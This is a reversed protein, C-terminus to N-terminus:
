KCTVKKSTSWAGYLKKGSFTKYARVRVYYSKGKTFNKGTYTVTSGGSIVKTAVKNKFKSDKAWVIEYGSVGGSPKAWTVKIKTTSPSTVSKLTVKNPKTKATVKASKAGVKTESDKTFAAVCLSYSTGGKLSTVTTSVTASGSVTKLRTYKKTSTNYQYINYGDAGAVKNWSLKVSTAAVSNVKLGGAKPPLAHKTNVASYDTWGKSIYARVKVAYENAATLGNLTASNTTVTKNFTTGKTKNTVYVYYKTAGSYKNWKFSLSEQTRSTLAVGTVKNASSSDSDSDDSQAPVTCKKSPMSNFVPIYFTHSDDLVGAKAYAKYTMVSAASPANVTTTYEHAYHSGSETNVNFKQLYGTYQYKGYGDAIYQSGHYITKYPTTWPRGYTLYKTRVDDKLIYGIKGGTSYSNGSETYLKGKFYDGIAGRYSFYQENALKTKTGTGTKKTSDYDSYMTTATNTRLFGSAWALGMSANSYAGINFYNYIGVFPERTGCSGGAYSSKSSGVELVIKSAIYYASMGSAKAAEMIAKSYKVTNGSSNKYTATDGNTKTYTINANHMWTSAIISEVGAQTQSTDYETSEFQFIHKADLWNRPDMYYKLGAESVCVWDPSLQIVYSGNKKCKSCSCYYNTNSVASKEIVQQAHNIAREGEIADNWNLGTKFVEFKWKPYKSHLEVLDDIYSEPFGKDRLTQAYNAAYVSYSVPAVATFLMMICLFFSILKKTM